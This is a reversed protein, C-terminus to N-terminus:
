IGKECYKGEFGPMCSCTISTDNQYENIEHTALCVGNNQCPNATKCVDKFHMIFLLETFVYM